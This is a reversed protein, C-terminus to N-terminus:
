FFILLIIWRAAWSHMGLVDPFVTVLGILGAHVSLHVSALFALLFAKLSKWCPRIVLCSYLLAHLCVLCTMSCSCCVCQCFKVEVSLECVFIVVTQFFTLDSKPLFVLVVMGVNCFACVECSLASRIALVNWCALEFVFRSGACVRTLSLNWWLSWTLSVPGLIPGSFRGNVNCSSLCASTSVLFVAGPPSLIVYAMSLCRGGFKVLM